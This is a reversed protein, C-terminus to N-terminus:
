PEVAQECLGSNLGILDFPLIDFFERMLGDCSDHGRAGCLCAQARTCNGVPETERKNRDAPFAIEQSMCTRNRGSSNIAYCSRHALTGGLVRAVM